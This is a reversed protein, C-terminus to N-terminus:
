KENLLFSLVKAELSNKQPDSRFHKEIISISTKGLFLMWTHCLNVSESIEMNTNCFLNDNEM